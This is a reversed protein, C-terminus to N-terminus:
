FVYFFWFWGSSVFFFFIFDVLFLFWNTHFVNLFLIVAACRFYIKSDCVHSNRVCLYHHFFACAKWVIKSQRTFCCGIILLAMDNHWTSLLLLPMVIDLSYIDITRRERPFTNSIKIKILPQCSDCVRFLKSFHYSFCVFVTFWNHQTLHLVQELVNPFAFIYAFFLIFSGFVLLITSKM